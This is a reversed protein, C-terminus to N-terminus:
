TIGTCATFLSRLPRNFKKLGHTRRRITHHRWNAIGLLRDAADFVERRRVDFLMPAHPTGIRNMLEQHSIAPIDLSM